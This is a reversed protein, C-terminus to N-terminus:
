LLKSVELFGPRERNAAAIATTSGLVSVQGKAPVEALVDAFDLFDAPSTALVEERIRQRIEDTDGILHRLM